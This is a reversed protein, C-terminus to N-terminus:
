TWDVVSVKTSQRPLAPPTSSPDRHQGLSPVTGQDPRIYQPAHVRSGPRTVGDRTISVRSDVPNITEEGSLRCHKPSSRVHGGPDSSTLVGAGDQGANQCAWEEDVSHNVSCIM